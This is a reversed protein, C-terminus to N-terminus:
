PRYRDPWDNCFHCGPGKEKLCAACVPDDYCGEGVCGVSDPLDDGLVFQTLWESFPVGNVTRTHMHEYNLICHMSGPATYSRFNPANRNITEISALYEPSWDHIDGGMALYYSIQDADFATSYQALRLRPMYAALEIYVDEISLTEVPQQLKDVDAPLNEQAEWNPFSDKLFSPTIIGAGSDALVSVKADAYHEAVYVGHLVSGYAGASCGAVLVHEPSAVRQYLWDIAVSTNTFGKHEIVVDDSYTKTTNGWYIDGTCYPTYVITWDKFLNGTSIDFIGQLIGADILAEYDSLTPAEEFFLAGAVSCTLENWCAGGGQLFILVRDSRGGRVFFRFPTGRSCITEGGPVVEIWEGAEPMEPGWPKLEVRASATSASEDCGLLGVLCVCTILVWYKM